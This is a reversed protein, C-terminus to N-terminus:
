PRTLGRKRENSNKSMSQVGANIEDFLDYTADIMQSGAAKGGAWASGILYDSVDGADPNRFKNLVTINNIMSGGMVQQLGHKGALSLMGNWLAEEYEHGALKTPVYATWAEPPLGYRAYVRSHYNRIDRVRLKLVQKPNQAWLAKRAEFDAQMLDRGIVYESMLGIPKGEDEAYDKMYNNATRGFVTDNRAVGLALMGYAYGRDALFQYYDIRADPDDREALRQLQGMETATLPKPGRVFEKDTM